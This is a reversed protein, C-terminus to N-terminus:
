TVLWVTRPLFTDWCKTFIVSGAEYLSSAWVSRFAADSWSAIRVSHGKMSPGSEVVGPDGRLVCVRRIRRLIECENSKLLGQIGDDIAKAASPPIVIRGLSACLVFAGVGIEELGDGLTVTTLVPAFM